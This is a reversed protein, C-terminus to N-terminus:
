HTPTLLFARFSGNYLGGGVIQGSDNIASAGTILWGSNKPLFANLDEMRGRSYLFARATPHFPDGYNASPQFTGVVEDHVNIGSPMSYDTSNNDLDKSKGDSYLFTRYLASSAFYSRGAVHGLNNIAIGISSSSGNIGPLYLIKGHTWIYATPGNENIHMGVVQGLDNIGNAWSTEGVIIKSTAGEYIVSSTTHIDPPRIFGAIVGRNNIDIAWSTFSGIPALDQMHGNAYIFALELPNGNVDTTTSIGCIQGHDNIGFASSGSTGPLTGLDEMRGNTYPFAHFYNTNLVQSTGVVQGRANIAFPSAGYGLTGIDTIIYDQAEATHLMLASMILGFAAVLLTDKLNM